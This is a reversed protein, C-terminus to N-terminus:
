SSKSTAVPRGAFYTALIKTELVASPEVSMWDRDIMVFDAYKGPAISGISAEAFNAYAAWSTMSALAQARTMCRDGFSGGGTISAYFTRMSSASEVPADTGNAIRAGADILRRWAYADDIRPSGLREVAWALDSLAHPAQVAAIVGIRAFRPIDDGAVVQAHEIRPRTPAIGSSRQAIREYADLVNRNARDGIAHVCPQFGNRIAREAIREIHQPETLILGRNAPDDSYPALLAAGRSGLAGDAYIKVARVSLRGDYAADIPGSRFHADLLEPEDHLMAHNRITYRGERLVQMQAALVTDDCGPEAVATVGWRNCEAIAGRVAAALEAQSPPPVQAYILAQAADVFTGTPTGREDRLIRGGPPDPTSADIGARRMACQNAL